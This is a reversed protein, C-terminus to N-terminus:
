MDGPDEGKRKKEGRLLHTGVADDPLKYLNCTKKEEKREKRKLLGDDLFQTYKQGRVGVSTNKSLICFSQANM